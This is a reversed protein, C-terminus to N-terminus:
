VAFLFFLFLISSTKHGEVWFKTQSAECDIKTTMHDEKDMVIDSTAGRLVGNTM